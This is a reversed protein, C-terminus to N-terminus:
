YLIDSKKGEDEIDFGQYYCYNSNLKKKIKRKFLSACLTPRFILSM